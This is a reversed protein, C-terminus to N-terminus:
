SGKVTPAASASHDRLNRICELDSGCAVALARLAQLHSHCTADCETTPTNAEMLLRRVMKEAVRDQRHQGM